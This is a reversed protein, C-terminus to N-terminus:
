WYRWVLRLLAWAIASLSPLYRITTDRSSGPIGFQSEILFSGAVVLSPVLFLIRALLVPAANALAHRLVCRLRSCGLGRLADIHPRGMEEMLVARNLRFAVAVIMLALAITPAIAGILWAGPSVTSWGRVPLLDLGSPSTLGWQM